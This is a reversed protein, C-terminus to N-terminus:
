RTKEHMRALVWAATNIIEDLREKNGYNNIMIRQITGDEDDIYYDIIESQQLEGREVREMDKNKMGELIRNLFFSQFPPTNVNFKMDSTPVIAVSHTAPYANALIMNNKSKLQRMDSTEYEEGVQRSLADAPKFSVDKLTDDIVTLTMKLREVEDEKENIQKVIWERVEALRKVRDESYNVAEM